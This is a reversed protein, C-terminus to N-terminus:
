FVLKIGATGYVGGEVLFPIRQISQNLLNGGKIWLAMRRSFGLQAYVGLDQYAPIRGYKGALASRAELTVGAKIRGMWTYFVHAEAKFSAPAFLHQQVETELKPIPTYGYYVHASADWSPTQWNLKVDGYYSLLRDVFAVTPLLPQQLFSPLYSWAFPNQLWKFGLQVDYSFRAGVSGRIGGMLHLRNVTVDRSWEFSAIYPNSELISDYTVLQDGGTAAAQLVAAQGLRYAIQVDPFILGGKYPYVTQPSLVYSLKVGLDLTLRKRTLTYHPILEGKFVTGSTFTATEAGFGVRFSKFGLTAESVTHFEKQSGSLFALRTGVNYLFRAGPANQVRAKVQGRHHIAMPTVSAYDGSQFGSQFFDTALINRYNVDATFCGGKFFSLFNAGAASESRTGSGLSAAGDWVFANDKLAMQRFQGWYSNHSAYLNMRFNEKRVPNWVLDLEPHLTYGAGANLYFHQEPALRAGPRMQVLYPHFEYAGKYTPNTVSYDFDLNFKYVSDPLDMLQSPKEIGTAERAYTNTVEVVPNVTQAKLVAAALVLASITFFRKM